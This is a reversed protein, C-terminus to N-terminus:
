YIHCLTKVLASVQYTSLSEADSRNYSIAQSTYISYSGSVRSSYCQSVYTEAQITQSLGTRRFPLQANPGELFNHGRRSGRILCVNPSTFQWIHFSVAGTTQWGCFFFFVVLFLPDTRWFSTWLGYKKWSWLIGLSDSVTEPDGAGNRLLTQTQKYYFEHLPHSRLASARFWPSQIFIWSMLQGWWPLSFLYPQRSHVLQLGDLTLIM